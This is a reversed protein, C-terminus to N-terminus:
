QHQEAKLFSKIAPHAEAKVVMMRRPYNVYLLANLRQAEKVTKELLTAQEGSEGFHRYLYGEGTRLRNRESEWLHIQDEIVPPLGLSGDAHGRAMHPHLHDRLYSILQDATIGKSLAASVSPGCLQGHVMNAFRDKLKVFLGLIAIQLPSSTYAYVKYNTEIIIHRERPTPQHTPGTSLLQVLATALFVSPRAEHILGMQKLFEAMAPPVSSAVMAATRMLSLRCVAMVCGVLDLGSAEAMVFYHILLTWLQTSRPALLFQFGKSTIELADMKTASRVALDAALLVQTLQSSEQSSRSGRSRGKGTTEMEWPEGTVLMYLIGEWRSEASRSQWEMRGDNEEEPGGSGPEQDLDGAFARLLSQRFEEHLWVEGKQGRLIGLNKLLMLAPNQHVKFDATHWARLETFPTAGTTLLLRQITYQATPSLLRYIAVCTRSDFFLRDRTAAPVGELYELLTSM